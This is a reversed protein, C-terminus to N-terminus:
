REKKQIGEEVDSDYDKAMIELMDVSCIGRIPCVSRLCILIKSIAGVLGKNYVM